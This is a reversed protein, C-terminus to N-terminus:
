NLFFGGSTLWKTKFDQLEWYLGSFEVYKGLPIGFARRTRVDVASRPVDHRGSKEFGFENAAHHVSDYEM